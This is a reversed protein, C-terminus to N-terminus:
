SNISNSIYIKICVVCISPLTLTKAVNQQALKCCTNKKMMCRTFAHAIGQGWWGGVLPSLVTETAWPPVAVGPAVLCSKGGFLTNFSNYIYIYIRWILWYCLSCQVNTKIRLTCNTNLFFFVRKSEATSMMVRKCYGNGPTVCDCPLTTGCANWGHQFSRAKSWIWSSAYQATTQLRNSAVKLSCGTTGINNNLRMSTTPPYALQTQMPLNCFFIELSVSCWYFFCATRTVFFNSNWSFKWIYIYLCILM